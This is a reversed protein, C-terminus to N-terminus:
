LYVAAKQRGYLEASLGGNKLSGHPNIFLGGNKSLCYFEM